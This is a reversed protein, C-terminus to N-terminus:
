PKGRIKQQLLVIYDQAEKIQDRLLGNEIVMGAPDANTELDHIYNKIGVPLANINDSTGRWGDDYRPREGNANKNM